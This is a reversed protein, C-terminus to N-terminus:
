EYRLAVNPDVRMARQAPISSAFLATITLLLAVSGFTAPDTTSVGFLLHAMLRAVALAAITGMTIGLIVLRLSGGIVHWLVRSRPAGFALRVGIERTQLAISYSLVGYIGLASLILALGAFSALLAMVMRQEAMTELMAEQLPAIDTVPEDKDVRHIRQVVAHELSEPTVGSAARVLLHEPGGLLWPYQGSPVYIAATPSEDPGQSRVDGAVGVITLWSATPPGVRLKRGIPDKGPWYLHALEENVIAVKEASQTDTDAFARGRRLPIGLTRFYDPGAIVYDAGPTQGAPPNPEESITFFQGAWDGVPLGRSVSVAEVGPLNSVTTVVRQWFEVRARPEKYREGALPVRLTLVGESRFGLDVRSLGALTRVMLGAAVLPVMALAVESVILV